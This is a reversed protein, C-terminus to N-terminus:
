SKIFLTLEVSIQPLYVCSVSPSEDDDDSGIWIETYGRDFEAEIIGRATEIWEEEWGASRFYDLKRKPDLVMAIRYVESHDTMNYYKNLLQKGLLMSARISPLYKANVAGSALHKDIYDMAPIVKSLNPTQASFFLTAQKFIDLVGALQGAIKWEEESLEYSRLKMERIGTLGDLPTRYALAFQLM